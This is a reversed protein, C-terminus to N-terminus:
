YGELIIYVWDAYYNFLSGLCYPVVSTWQIFYNLIFMLIKRAAADSLKKIRETKAQYHSKKTPSSVEKETNSAKEFTSSQAISIKTEPLTSMPINDLKSNAAKLLQINKNIVLYVNASFYLVGIFMLIELGTSLIQILKQPDYDKGYCTLVLKWDRSGLDLPRNKVVSFYTILTICFILIMNSFVAISVLTATFHCMVGDWDENYVVNHSQGFMLSYSLMLDTCAIYFPFRLTVPLRGRKKYTYGIRFAVYNSCLISLCMFVWGFGYVYSSADAVDPQPSSM